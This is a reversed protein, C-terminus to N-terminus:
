VRIIDVPVMFLFFGVFFFIVDDNVVNSTIVTCNYMCVTCVKNLIFPDMNHNNPFTEFRWIQFSQHLLKDAPLITLIWFSNEPHCFYHVRVVM